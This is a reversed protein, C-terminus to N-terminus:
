RALTLWRHFTDGTVTPDEQRMRVFDRQVVEHVDDPMTHHVFRVCTLM